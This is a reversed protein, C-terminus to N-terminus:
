LKEDPIGTTIYLTGSLRDHPMLRMNKRFIENFFYFVFYLRSVLMLLLTPVLVLGLIFDNTVLPLVGDRLVAVLILPFDTFMWLFFYRRIMQGASAPSGDGSVLIM